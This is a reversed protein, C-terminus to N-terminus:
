TSHKQIVWGFVRDSYNLGKEVGTSCASVASMVAGPAQVKPCLQFHPCFFGDRVKEAIVSVFNRQNAETAAICGTRICFLLWPPISLSRLCPTSSLSCISPGHACTFFCWSSFGGSVEALMLVGLCPFLVKQLETRHSLCAQPSLFTPSTPITCYPQVLLAAAGM